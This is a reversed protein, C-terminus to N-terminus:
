ADEHTSSAECKVTALGLNDHTPSPTPRPERTSNILGLFEMELGGQRDRHPAAEGASIGGHHCSAALGTMRFGLLSRVTLHFTKM